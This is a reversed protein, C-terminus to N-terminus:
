QVFKAAFCNYFGPDATLAVDGISVSNQFWGTGYVFGNKIAVGLCRIGPSHQSTQYIPLTTGSIDFQILWNGFDQPFGSGAPFYGGLILKSNDYALSDGEYGSQSFSTSWLFSGNTSYGAMFVGGNVGYTGKRFIGNGCDISTTFGGAMFVNGDSDTAVGRGAVTSDGGGMIRSWSHSGDTGLYKAVFVGYGADTGLPTGGVNGVSVRNQNTCGVVLLNDDRDIELGYVLDYDSCGYVKGWLTTGTTKDFKALAIDLGGFGYSTIGNKFNIKFNAPYTSPFGACQAAVIVNGVSDVAVKAYNDAGISGFSKAWIEDSGPTFKAVFCDTDLSGGEATITTTGCNLSGTFTGAVIVNDDADVAVGTVSDDGIGGLRKVWRLLGAGSYKVLFGDWQGGSFPIVGNGFNAGTNAFRGVFYVNGGSDVAMDFAQTSHHRDSGMVGTTPDAFYPRVWKFTGPIESPQYDAFSKFYLNGSVLYGFGSVMGNGFQSGFDDRVPYIPNQITVTNTFSWNSASYVGVHIPLAAGADDLCEGAFWIPEADAKSGIEFEGSNLVYKGTMQIFIKTADSAVFCFAMRARNNTASDASTQYALVIGQRYVDLTARLQPSGVFPPLTHATSIFSSNPVKTPDTNIEVTGLALNEVLNISGIATDNTLHRFLYITHDQHQILACSQTTDVSAVFPLSVSVPSKWVSGTQPTTRYHFSYRVQNGDLTLSYFAAVLAGSALKIIGVPVHDQPEEAYLTTLTTGYFTADPNLEGFKTYHIHTTPHAPPVATPYSVLIGSREVDPFSCGFWTLPSQIGEGPGGLSVREVSLAATTVDYIRYDPGAPRNAPTGLWSLKQGTGIDTRFIGIM